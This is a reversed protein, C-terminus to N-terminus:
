ESSTNAVSTKSAYFLLPSGAAKKAASVSDLLRTTMKERVRCGALNGLGVTLFSFTAISAGLWLPPLGTLGAGLAAPICNVALTLGLAMASTRGISTIQQADHKSFLTYMGMAILLLAGLLNATKQIEVAFLSSAWCLVFSVLGSILAICANIRTGILRGQCGYAMGICLNDLNTALALIFISVSHM